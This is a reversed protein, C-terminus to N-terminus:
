WKYLISTKTSQVSIIGDILFIFQSSRSKTAFVNRVLSLLLYSSVVHQVDISSTILWADARKNNGVHSADTFWEYIVEVWRMADFCIKNCKWSNNFILLIAIETYIYM